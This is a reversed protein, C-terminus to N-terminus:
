IRIPVTPGLPQFNEQKDVSPESSSFLSRLSNSTMAAQSLTSSFSLKNDSIPTAPRSPLISSSTTLEALPVNNFYHKVGFSIANLNDIETQLVANKKELETIKTKDEITTLRLKKNELKLEAYEKKLLTNEAKLETNETKLLTSETKLTDNDLELQLTHIKRKNRYRKASAANNIKRQKLRNQDHTETTPSM